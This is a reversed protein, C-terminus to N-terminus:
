STANAVASPPAAVLAHGLVGLDSDILQVGELSLPGFWATECFRAFDMAAPRLSFERLRWHISFAVNRYSHLDEASRLAPDTLVTEPQLFGLSSAIASPDAQQDHPPIDARGLAWALVALAESRWGANVATQLPLAGFKATLVEVEVPE